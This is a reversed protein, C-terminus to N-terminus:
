LQMVQLQWPTVVKSDSGGHDGRPELQTICGNWNPASVRGAAATEWELGLNNALLGALLTV